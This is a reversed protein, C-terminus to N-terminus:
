MCCQEDEGSNLCDVCILYPDVHCQMHMYCTISDYKKEITYFIVIISKFLVDTPPSKNMRLFEDYREAVDTPGSWEM